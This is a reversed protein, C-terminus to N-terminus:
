GEEEEELDALEITKKRDYFRSRSFNTAIAWTQGGPYDRMKDAHIRLINKKREDPSQNLTFFYDFPRLKGKDESLDERTTVFNPDKKNVLAVNSAQTPTAVVVNEEMALEKMFRGIKQQRFREDKPSWIQGDGLECLELYDIILLDFEGYMKKMERFSNRIDYITANGFKEYAQVYIEGQGIKKIVTQLKKYKEKSFIGNKVDHYLSGTWSADYRNLCQEETGEIQFHAVKAGRRATSVGLHVMAMSKGLGSEGLLLITEGTEPGGKTAHDIEDISTPVKRRFKDESIREINRNEFDNFVKKYYKDKISFNALEEAGRIFIDFAKKDEGRNFMQATEEYLVVFKSQKIFKQFADLIDDHNDVLTNKIKVVYDLAADDKRLEIQVAGLTPRKNKLSFQKLVEKWFKKEVEDVLYAYKLHQRVVEFIKEKDFAARFLEVTYESSLFDIEKAM